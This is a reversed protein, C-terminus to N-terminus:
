VKIGLAGAIIGKLTKLAEPIEIELVHEHAWKNDLDGDKSLLESIHQALVMKFGYGPEGDTYSCHSYEQARTNLLEIFPSAYDGPGLLEERNTQLNRALNSAVENIFLPREAEPVQEYVMRDVVQLMFALFELLTGMGQEETAYRFGEGRLNNYHYQSVKWINFAIVGARDLLTKQRSQNRKGKHVRKSEHWKTKIRLAM